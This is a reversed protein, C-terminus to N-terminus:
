AAQSWSLVTPSYTLMLKLHRWGDRIPHLHPPRGRRDPHFTIPVEAIRLGAKRAQILMESAFEMGTSQLRMRNWAGQTFARM